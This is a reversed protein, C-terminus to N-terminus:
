RRYQCQSPPRAAFHRNVARRNREHVVVQAPQTKPSSERLVRADDVLIKHERTNMMTAPHHGTPVDARDRRWEARKRNASQTKLLARRTRLPSSSFM